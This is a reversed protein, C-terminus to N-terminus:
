RLAHFFHECNVRADHATKVTAIAARSHEAIIEPSKLYREMAEVLPRVQRPPILYGNVGNQLSGSIGGVDTAIAPLGRAFAEILSIPFGEAYSPLVFVDALALAEQLEDDSIWGLAAVNGIWGNIRIKEQVYELLTGGGIFTFSFEHRSRLEEIATLLEHIGKERIMWGVFIFRLSGQAVANKPEGVVSYSEPLWYHIEVIRDSNVGLNRFLEGWRKGSATLKHPIKLLLGTWYRRWLGGQGVELFWGDVIVFLDNVRFCRCIGSLLIRELFSFGAGSFIIVGDFNQNRLKRILELARNIGAGLRRAFSFHEFGSRLTNIVEVVHGQQRAYAILGISLTLVGGPHAANSHRPNAGVLIYKEANM